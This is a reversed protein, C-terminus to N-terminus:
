RTISAERETVVENAQPATVRERGAAKSEYLCEEAKSLLQEATIGHQPFSALGISLTVPDLTQDLHRITVKLLERRLADTRKTADEISAEPLIVSFEEGGYRCVVDESRFYRRFVQAMTKLVLDGADHGWTDNFRKFHDLDILAVTIPHNKRRARHLERELAEQM